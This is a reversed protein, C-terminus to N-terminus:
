GVGPGIYYDQSTSLRRNDNKYRNLTNEIREYMFSYRHVLQGGQYDFDQAGRWEYLWVGAKMATIQNIAPPLNTTDFPLDYAYPRLEDNVFATGITLARVIRAAIETSYNPDSEALENLNAWKKVNKSGFIEYIDNATAYLDGSTTFTVAELVKQLPHNGALPEYLSGGADVWVLVSRAGAVFADDPVCISYYGHAVESFKGEVWDDDLAGDALSFSETEKGDRRYYGTLAPTGVITLGTVPLYTGRNILRITSEVGEAGFEVAKSM